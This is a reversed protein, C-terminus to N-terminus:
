YRKSFIGKLFESGAGALDKFLESAAEQYVQAGARLDEKLDSKPDESRKPYDGALVKEYAESNAWKKIEVVRLVPFPHTAWLLNLIKFVSDMGGKSEYEAAQKEFEEIKYSSIDKGGALKFIVQNCTALDQTVLLGARDASLESKRDWERLALLVPTALLQFPGPAIWQSMQMLVLLMTKYLAHGSLIHAVEHALICRIESASMLELVSSHLVIMPEDVGIAMANPFPSQTVYLEPIAKLDLVECVERLATDLEPLQHKSVRVASALFSLRLRREGVAGIIMRLVRDFGPLKRLGALAAADAPHEYARSSLDLFVKRKVVIPAEM